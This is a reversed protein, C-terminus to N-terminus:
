FESVWGKVDFDRELKKTYKTALVFNDIPGLRVRYHLASKKIIKDVFVPYQKALLKKKFYLANIERKYSGAQVIWKSERDTVVRKRTITRQEIKRPISSKKSIKENSKRLITRIPKPFEKFQRESNIQNHSNDTFKSFESYELTIIPKEPILHGANITNHSVNEKLLM